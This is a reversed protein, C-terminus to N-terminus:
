KLLKNLLGRTAPGVNGLKPLKFKAQFKKVAKETLTGFYGTAAGNYLRMSALQKQLQVVEDNSSGIKLSSIFKFPEATQVPTITPTVTTTTVPNATLGITFPSVQLPNSTNGSSDTVRITCNNHLGDALTNFTVTNIGAIASTNQSSCDGNYNIIGAKSSSFMYTPTKNAISSQIATVENLTAAHADITKQIDSGSFSASTNGAPDKLTVGGIQLPSTQDNNGSAVTYTANYTAGGNSSNWNLQVGNYSGSVTALPQITSPTLTFVITDGIRLVGTSNASSTISSIIPVSGGSISVSARGQNGAIDSFTIVAPLITGQIDGGSLAYSATFPGTGGGNVPVPHGAISVSPNVTSENTNFSLNLTNGVQTMSSNINSSSVTVSSLVPVQGDIVNVTGGLFPSNDSLSVTTTAIFVTGAADPALPGGDLTITITNSGSGTLAIINRGTLAGNFNTFSATKTSVAESFVMNITNPATIKVSTISPTAALVPSAIVSLLAVLSVLRYTQNSM